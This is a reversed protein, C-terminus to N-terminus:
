MVETNITPDVARLEQERRVQADLADRFQDACSPCRTTHGVLMAEFGLDYTWGAKEAQECLSLEPAAPSRIPYVPSKAGCSFGNALAGGCILLGSKNGVKLWM